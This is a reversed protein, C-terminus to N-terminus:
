SEARSNKKSPMQFAYKTKRESEPGLQFAYKLACKRHTSLNRPKEPKIEPKIQGNTAGENTSPSM